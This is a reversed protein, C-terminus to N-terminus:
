LSGGGRRRGCSRVNQIGALVIEAAVRFPWVPKTIQAQGEQYGVPKTDRVRGFHLCELDVTRCKEAIEERDSATGPGVRDPEGVSVYDCADIVPSDLVRDLTVVLEVRTIRNVETITISRSAGRFRDAAEIKAAISCGWDSRLAVGFVVVRVNDNAAELGSRCVIPGDVEVRFM